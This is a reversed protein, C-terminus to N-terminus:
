KTKEKACRLRQGDKVPNSWENLTEHKETVNDGDVEKNSDNTREESKVANNEYNETEVETKNKKNNPVCEKSTARVSSQLKKM